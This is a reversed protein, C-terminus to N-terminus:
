SFNVLKATKLGIYVLSIGLTNSLAIYCITTVFEGKQILIISELGFASFTTFAALFGGFIIIKLGDTWQAQEALHWCFGAFFCGILNVAFTSWPFTTQHSRQIFQSLGVRLCTGLTGAVCLQLVLKIM